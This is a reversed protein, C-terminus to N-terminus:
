EPALSLRHIDGCLAPWGAEHVLRGRRLFAVLGLRGRGCVDDRKGFGFFRDGAHGANRGTYLGVALDSLWMTHELPWGTALNRADCERM